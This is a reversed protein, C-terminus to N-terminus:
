IGAGLLKRRSLLSVKGPLVVCNIEKHGRWVWEGVFADTSGHANEVGDNPVADLFVGDQSARKALSVCFGAM